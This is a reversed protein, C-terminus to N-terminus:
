RRHLPLTLHILLFFFQVINEYWQCYRWQLILLLVSITIISWYLYQWIGTFVVSSFYVWHHVVLKSKIRHPPHPPSFSLMLITKHWSMFVNKPPYPLANNFFKSGVTLIPSFGKLLFLFFFSLFFNSNYVLMCTWMTKLLGIHICHIM